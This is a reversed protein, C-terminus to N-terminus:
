SFQRCLEPLITPYDDIILSPASDCDPTVAPLSPPTFDNRLLDHRKGIVAAACLMDICCLLLYHSNVLDDSILPFELVYDNNIEMYSEWAAEKAEQDLNLEDCVEDFQLKVREESETEM